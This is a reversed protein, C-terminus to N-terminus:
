GWWGDSTAAVVSRWRGIQIGLVRGVLVGIAVGWFPLILWYGIGLDLAISATLMGTLHATVRCTAM